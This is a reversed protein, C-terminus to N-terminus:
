INFNTGEINKQTGLSGNDGLTNQTYTVDESLRYILTQRTFSILRWPLIQVSSSFKVKSSKEM